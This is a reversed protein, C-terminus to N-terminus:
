GKQDVRFSEKSGYRTTTVKKELIVDETLPTERQYMLDEMLPLTEEPEEDLM